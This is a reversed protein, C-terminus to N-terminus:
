NENYDSRTEELYEEMEDASTDADPFLVEGIFHIEKPPKPPPPNKIIGSMKEYFDSRKDKM